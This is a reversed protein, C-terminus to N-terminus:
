RITELLAATLPIQSFYRKQFQEEAILNRIHNLTESDATLDLPSDDILTVIQRALLESFGCQKQLLTPSFAQKQQRCQQWLTQLKEVTKAVPEPTFDYDLVLPEQIAIAQQYAHSM